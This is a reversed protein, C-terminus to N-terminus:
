QFISNVEMKLLPARFRATIFVGVVKDRRIMFVM